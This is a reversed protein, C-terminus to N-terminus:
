SSIPTQCTTIWHIGLSAMATIVFTRQDDKGISDSITYAISGWAFTMFASFIYNIIPIAILALLVFFMIFGKIWSQQDIGYAICIVFIEMAFFRWAKENELAQSAGTRTDRISGM